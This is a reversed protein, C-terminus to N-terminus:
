FTSLIGKFLMGRWTRYLQHMKKGTCTKWFLARNRDHNNMPHEEYTAPYFYRALTTISLTKQNVCEKHSEPTKPTSLLTSLEQPNTQFSTKWVAKRRWINTWLRPLIKKPLAWAEKGQAKTLAYLVLLYCVSPRM